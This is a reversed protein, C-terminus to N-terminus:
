ALARTPKSVRTKKKQIKKHLRDMTDLRTRATQAHNSTILPHERRVNRLQEYLLVQLGRVRLLELSPVFSPPPSTAWHQGLSMEQALDNQNETDVIVRAARSTVRQDESSSGGGGRIGGGLLSLTKKYGSIWVKLTNYQDVMMAKPHAQQVNSGFLRTYQLLADSLVLKAEIYYLFAQLQRRSPPEELPPPPEEEEEGGGGGGAAAAAAAAATWPPVSPAVAPNRSHTWRQGFIKRGVNGMPDMLKYHNKAQAAIREFINIVMGLEEELERRADEVGNELRTPVYAAAGGGGGGANLEDVLAQSEALWADFDSSMPSPVGSGGKKEEKEGNNPADEDVPPHHQFGGAYYSDGGGGGGSGEVLPKGHKDVLFEAM